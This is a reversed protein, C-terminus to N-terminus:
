LFMCEKRMMKGLQKFRGLKIHCSIYVARGRWVITM